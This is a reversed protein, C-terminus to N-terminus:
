RPTTQDGQAQPNTQPMQSNDKPPNTSSPTATTGNSMASHGNSLDSNGAGTVQLNDNVKRNQAYSQAIREAQMKAKSSGVSGNLDISNESVNVSVSSDTLSSDNKISSEIQKQLTTMGGAPTAGSQAMSGAEPTAAQPAPSSPNASTQGNGAISGATNQSGNGQAADQASLFAMGPGSASSSKPATEGEKGSITLHEKVGRVGAISKVANKAKKKDDKSNVTGDLTVKGQEVAAQINAFAPDSALKDKVATQLDSDSVKATNANAQQDQQKQQTMDPRNAPNNPSNPSNPNNPNNPNQMGPQGGMPQQANASAYAFTMALALMLFMTYKKM